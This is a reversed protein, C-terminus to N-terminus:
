QLMVATKHFIHTPRGLSATGNRQIRILKATRQGGSDNGTRYPFQNTAPSCAEIMETAALTERAPFDALKEELPERLQLASQDFARRTIM